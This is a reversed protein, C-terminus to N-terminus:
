KLILSYLILKMYENILIMYITKLKLKKYITERM